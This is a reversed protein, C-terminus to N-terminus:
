KKKNLVREVACQQLTYQTFSQQSKVASPSKLESAEFSDVLTIRGSINSRKRTANEPIQLSKFNYLQRNANDTSRKRFRQKIILSLTTSLKM